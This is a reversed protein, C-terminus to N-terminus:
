ANKNLPLETSPGNFLAKKSFKPPFYQAIHRYDSRTEGTISELRVISGYKDKFFSLVMGASANYTKIGKPKFPKFGLERVRLEIADLTKYGTVNGKREWTAVGDDSINVRLKPGFLRKVVNYTHSPTSISDGIAQNRNVKRRPTSNPTEGKDLKQLLKKTASKSPGSLTYVHKGNIEGAYDIVAKTGRYKKKDIPNKLRVVEYSPLGMQVLGANGPKVKKGSIKGSFSSSHKELRSFNRSDMKLNRTLDSELLVHVTGKYTKAGFREGHSIPIRSGDELKASARKGDFKFWVYKAPDKPAAAEAKFTVTTM